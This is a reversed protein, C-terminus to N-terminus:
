PRPASPSSALRRPRRVPGWWSPSHLTSASSRVGSRAGTAERRYINKQFCEVAVERRATRRDPDNGPAAALRQFKSVFKM